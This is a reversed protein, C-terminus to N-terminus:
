IGGKNIIQDALVTNHCLNAIDFYKSFTEYEKGAIARHCEVCLTIGNAPNFLYEPSKWDRYPLIHHANLNGGTDDGCEQCIYGDREFVHARWKRYEHSQMIRERDTATFGDFSKTHIGRQACSNRIRSELTPSKGFAHSKEGRQADGILRKSKQTHTRGKMPSSKGFWPNNEGSKAKSMRECQEATRKKGRNATRIKQKQEDSMSKGFNNNLEGTQSKSINACHQPSLKIGKRCESMAKRHASSKPKGKAACSICTTHAWRREVSQRTACGDCVRVVLKHSGPSMESVINGHEKLTAEEDIM